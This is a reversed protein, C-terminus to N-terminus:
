LYINDINSPNWMRLMMQIHYQHAHTHTFSNGFQIYHIEILKGIQLRLNSPMKKTWENSDRQDYIAWLSLHEPSRVSTYTARRHTCTYIGPSCTFWFFKVTKKEHTGGCMEFSRDFISPSHSFWVTCNIEKTHKRLWPVVRFSYFGTKSAFSFWISHSHVCKQGSVLSRM